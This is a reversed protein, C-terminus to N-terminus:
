RSTVGSNHIGKELVQKRDCKHRLSYPTEGLTKSFKHVGRWPETKFLM